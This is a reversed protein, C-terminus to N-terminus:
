KENLKLRMDDACLSGKCMPLRGLSPIPPMDDITPNKLKYLFGVAMDMRLPHLLLIQATVYVICLLFSPPPLRQLLFPLSPFSSVSWAPLLSVLFSSTALRKIIDFRECRRQVQDGGTSGPPGSRLELLVQLLVGLEKPTAARGGRWRWGGIILRWIFGV